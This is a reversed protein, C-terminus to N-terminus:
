MKSLSLIDKISLLEKEIEQTRGNRLISSATSQMAPYAARLMHNAYIVVNAGKEILENFLISNYSTPVLVIPVKTKIINRLIDIFEFIEKGDKERSHIMIADAGAEIYIEARKVADEMGFNLILSEIRATIMFDPNIQSRKGSKIKEAFILPDAQTQKVENGFLSNMKLGTKDEIVVMSVGIRDLTKVMFNFHELIGGTDADYIIPLNSVEMIEHLNNVRSTLDLSEIDPKWRSTSDTLSSSWIGDFCIKQGNEKHITKEAIIASIPNHAELIRIGKKSNILRRIKRRRAEPTITLGKLSLDGDTQYIDNSYNIEILECKKLSCVKKMYNKLNVLEGCNWNDGHIIYNIEIDIFQDINDLNKIEIVDKIHAIGRAAEFRLNTELFPYEGCQNAAKTSLIGIVVEGYKKAEKIVRIHGAHWVDAIMPVFALM